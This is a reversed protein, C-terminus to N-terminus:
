REHKPLGTLFFPTGFVEVSRLVGNDPRAISLAPPVEGPQPIGTRM